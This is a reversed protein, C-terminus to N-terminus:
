SPTDSLLYLCIAWTVICTSFPPFSCHFKTSKHLKGYEALTASNVLWSKGHRAYFIAMPKSLVLAKAARLIDTCASGTKGQPSCSVVVCYLCVAEISTLLYILWGMEDIFLEIHVIQCFWEMAFTFSDFVVGYYYIYICLWLLLLL